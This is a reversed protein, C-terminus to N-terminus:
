FNLLSWSYCIFERICNYKLIMYFTQKMSTFINECLVAFNVTVAYKKISSKVSIAIDKYTCMMLQIETDDLADSYSVPLPCSWCTFLVSIELGNRVGALVPAFLKRLLHSQLYHNLLWTRAPTSM